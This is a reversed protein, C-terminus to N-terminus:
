QVTIGSSDCSVTLGSWQAADGTLTAFHECVSQTDTGPVVLVPDAETVQPRSPMGDLMFQPTNLLLGAYRRAAVLADSQGVSSVTDDLSEGMVGEIAAIEADNAIEPEAILRDKLAVAVDWM